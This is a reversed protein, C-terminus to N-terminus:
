SVGKVCLQWHDPEAGPATGEPVDKLATWLGVKSTVQEGRRYAQARQYVGRFKTGSKELEAVRGVLGRLEGFAGEIAEYVEDRSAPRRMYDAHGEDAMAKGVASKLPAPKRRPATPRTPAPPPAAKRGAVVEAVTLLREGSEPDEGLLTKQLDTMPLEADWLRWAEAIDAATPM